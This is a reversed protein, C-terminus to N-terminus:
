IGIVPYTTQTIYNNVQYSNYGGSKVQGQAPQYSHYLQSYTPAAAPKPAPNSAPTGIDFGATRLADEITSRKKVPGPVECEDGPSVPRIRKLENLNGEQNQQM